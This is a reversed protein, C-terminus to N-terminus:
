RFCTLPMEPVHLVNKLIIRHWNKGNYAEMRIDGIGVGTMETPDGIIVPIVKELKSYNVFLDQHSTM